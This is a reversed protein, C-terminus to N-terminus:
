GLGKRATQTVAEMAAVADNAVRQMAQGRDLAERGARQLATADGEAKRCAAERATLEADRKDLQARMARHEDSIRGREAEFANRDQQLKERGATVEATVEAQLKQAAAMTREAEEKLHVASDRLAAFEKQAERAQRYVEANHDAMPKLEELAKLVGARDKDPWGRVLAFAYDVADGLKDMPIGRPTHLAGVQPM